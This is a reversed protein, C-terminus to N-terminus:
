HNELYQKVKVPNNTIVGDAGKDAFNTIRERSELHPPSWTWAYLKANCFQKRYLAYDNGVSTNEWMESSISAFDMADNEEITFFGNADKFKKTNMRSLVLGLQTSSDLHGSNRLNILSRVLLEDFSQAMIATPSNNLSTILSELAAPNCENNALTSKIDVILNKRFAFMSIIDDLTLLGKSQLENLTQHKILRGGCFMGHSCIWQNDKTTRFDLEVTDIDKVLNYDFLANQYSKWLQTTNGVSRATNFRDEALKLRDLSSSLLGLNETLSKGSYGHILGRHSILNFDFPSDNKQLSLM